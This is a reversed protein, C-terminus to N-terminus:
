HATGAWDRILRPMAAGFRAQLSVLSAANTLASAIGAVDKNAALQAISMGAGDSDGSILDGIFTIVTSSADQKLQRRYTASGATGRPYHSADTSTLDVSRFCCAWLAVHFHLM